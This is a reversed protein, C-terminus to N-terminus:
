NQNEAGITSELRKEVRMKEAGKDNMQYEAAKSQQSEAKKFIDRPKIWRTRQTHTPFYSQVHINKM